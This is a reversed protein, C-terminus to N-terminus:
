KIMCIFQFVKKLVDKIIILSEFYLFFHNDFYKMKKLIDKKMLMVCGTNFSVQNLGNKNKKVILNKYDQKHIKPTIAGFKNIKKSASLLNLLDSTKLKVDSDMYIIFKKNIKKVALNLSNAFGLNEKPIVVKINKFDKELNKKINSNLSNEVIYFRVNKNISSLLRRIKKESNYSVILICFNKLINSNM